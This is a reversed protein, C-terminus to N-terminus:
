QVVSPTAVRKKKPLLPNHGGDVFLDDQNLVHEEDRDVLRFFGDVQAVERVLVRLLKAVGDEEVEGLGVHELQDVALVVDGGLDREEPVALRQVEIFDDVALKSARDFVEM